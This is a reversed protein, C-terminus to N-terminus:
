VDYWAASVADVDVMKGMMTDVNLVLIVNRNGERMLNRFVPWFIRDLGVGTYDPAYRAAFREAERGTPFLLPAGLRDDVYIDGTNRAQEFRMLLFLPEGQTEKQPLAALIKYHDRRHPRLVSDGLTGGIRGALRALPDHELTQRWSRGLLLALLRKFYGLMEMENDFCSFLKLFEQEGASCCTQELGFEQLLAVGIHYLTPFVFLRQPAGRRCFFLITVETQACCAPLIGAYVPGLKLEQELWKGCEEVTQLLVTLPTRGVCFDM